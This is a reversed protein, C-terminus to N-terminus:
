VCVCVCWVCVCWVCVGCVRVCWARVCWVGCVCARVCACVVCVCVVRVCVCVCVGCVCVMRACVVCVCWVCVVRACVGCVCWARACVVCACMSMDGRGSGGIHLSVCVVHACVRVCWVCVVRACVCWTCVGCACVYVCVYWVCVCVCVSVDGRGSGGIHLSVCVCTEEGQDELTSHYVCVCERRRERIRWHPTICVCVCVCVSVDGRGSRGTHLSVCVCECVCERRRERIRWHPTIFNRHMLECMFEQARFPEPRGQQQVVEEVWAESASESLLYPSCTRTELMSKMLLWQNTRHCGHQLANMVQECVERLETRVGEEVPECHRLQFYLDVQNSLVRLVIWAHATMTATLGPSPKMALVESVSSADDSVEGEYGSGVELTALEVDAESGCRSAQMSPVRFKPSCNQAYGSSMSRRHGRAAVPVGLQPPPPTRSREFTPESSQFYLQQSASLRVDSQSSLLEPTLDGQHTSSSPRPKLKLYYYDELKVLQYGPISIAELRQTFYSMSSLEGFVFKLPVQHARCSGVNHTAQVHSAVSQLLEASPLVAHGVSVLEDCM